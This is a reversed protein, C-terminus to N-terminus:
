KNRYFKGGLDNASVTEIPEKDTISQTEDVAFADCVFKCGIEGLDALSENTLIM